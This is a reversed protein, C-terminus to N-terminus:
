MRRRSADILSTAISSPSRRMKPGRGSDSRPAGSGRAQAWGAAGAAVLLPFAPLAYRPIAEVVMHFATFVALMALVTALLPSRRAGLLLGALAGLVVLIHWVTLAPSRPGNTRPSPAGWLRPVKALLMGAYRLPHAPLYTAVNHRAAAQLAADRDLHPRRAAVADMVASAPISGVYRYRRLDPFRRVAEAALARKAGPLTGNGPLFTGVFFATGGGTTVPVLRGTELSANLSWLAPPVLAAVLLVAAARAGRRARGARWEIVFLCLAVTPIVLLLNARTLVAGALLLGCLAILRLSWQARAAAALAVAAGTLWLAGLPESLLDGGVAILPPYTAVIAAAVLGAIAGGVLWAFAFALPILATGVAWQAWYGAPVDPRRGQKVRGGDLKGALAFLLPAGPPWHLSDVGYSGTKILRIAATVYGGEDRSLHHDPHLAPVLRLGGGLVTLAVLAALVSKKPARM